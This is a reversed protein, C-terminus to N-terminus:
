KCKCRSQNSCKKRLILPYQSDFDFIARMNFFASRRLFPNIFNLFYIVLFIWM